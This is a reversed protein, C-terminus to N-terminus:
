EPWRLPRRAIVLEEGTLAVTQEKLTTFKEGAVAKRVVVSAGSLRDADFAHLPQGMELMVYNTVDVVNNISNQGVAELRKKLWDPSEGIKVGTIVRGCYRPCLETNAVELKIKNKTSAESFRALIEPSRVPRGLLCGIERALGYHSLCDARNPTVKLEFTVDDYGAFSAFSEGVKAEPPLIAIGESTEALALEKYSCLMGNSEVDRIKSKKIAFNGPLVAGPLAVIVKDGARHNQAGCVIQEIQGPAVAVQCLSLKDANPHQDKIQIHGVVVHQFDRSRDQIEEVELGSKTLLDALEQTKSMYDSVDVFDNLWKLSIKM